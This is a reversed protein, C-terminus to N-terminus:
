RGSCDSYNSEISPNCNVTSLSLRPIRRRASFSTGWIIVWPTTKACTEEANSGKPSTEGNVTGIRRNSFFIQDAWENPCSQSVSNVFLSQSLNMLHVSTNLWNLSKAKLRCNKSVSIIFQTQMDECVCRRLCHANYGVLSSPYYGGFLDVPQKDNTIPLLVAADILNM